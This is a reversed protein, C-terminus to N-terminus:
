AERLQAAAVAAQGLALGGDNVPVLRNTFVQFGERELLRRLRTYLLLNQFVGGSLVVRNAGSRTRLDAAALFFIDALTLHFRQARQSLACGDLTRQV